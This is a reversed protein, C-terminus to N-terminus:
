PAARHMPHAATRPSGRRCRCRTRLRWCGPSGARPRAPAAAIHRRALVRMESLAVAVEPTAKGLIVDERRAGARALVEVPIFVQGKRAQFPLARLRGVVAYAVGAHGAAEASGPERGGALIISAMRILASSTDGAYGELDNVTPMPDDYLDLIRAELMRIFANAPLRNEAITRRLANAVPHAEAEEARSGEIVERWWTLRIEGAAPESVRQAVAAVEANFAYLAVLHPRREAPAFLATFYRDPDQERVLRECYGAADTM